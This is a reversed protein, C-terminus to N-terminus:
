ASVNITFCEVVLYFCFSSCQNKLSAGDIWGLRRHTVSCIRQRFTVSNDGYSNSDGPKGKIPRPTLSRDWM